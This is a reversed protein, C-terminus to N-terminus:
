KRFTGHRSSIHSRLNLIGDKRSHNAFQLLVGHCFASTTCDERNQVQAHQSQTKYRWHNVIKLHVKIFAERISRPIQLVGYYACTQFLCILMPIFCSSGALFINNLPPGSDQLEELWNSHYTGEEKLYTSLSDLRLRVYARYLDSVLSREM